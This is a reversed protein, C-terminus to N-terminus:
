NLLSRNAGIFLTESSEFVVILYNVFNYNHIEIMKCIFSCSLLFKEGKTRLIVASVLERRKVLGGHHDGSIHRVEQSANHSDYYFAVM